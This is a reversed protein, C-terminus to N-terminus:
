CDELKRKLKKLMGETITESYHTGEYTPHLVPYLGKTQLVFHNEILWEIHTEYNEIADDYRHLDAYLKGLYRYANIYKRQASKELYPQAADKEGLEYLSAGLFFNYGANSPATRILKSYAEKAKQYDGNNFLKEAQKSTQANVGFAILM